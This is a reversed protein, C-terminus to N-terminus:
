AGAVFDPPNAALAQLGNLVSTGREAGGAIVHRFKPFAAAMETFEALRATACAPRRHRNGHLGSLSQADMRSCAARWATGHTQRLGHPRQLRRRCPNRRNDHNNFTLAARGPACPSESTLSVKSAPLPNHNEPPRRSAPSGKAAAPAKNKSITSKRRSPLSANKRMVSANTSPAASSQQQRRAPRGFALLVVAPSTRADRLRSKLERVTRSMEKAVKRLHFLTSRIASGREHLDTLALLVELRDVDQTAYASQLDDWLRRSHPDSSGRGTDPHLRRVLIRYLEKVRAPADQKKQAVSAAHSERERKWERYENFRKKYERKTFDDPEEDEAFRM